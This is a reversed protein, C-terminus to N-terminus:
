TGSLIIAELGDATIRVRSHPRVHGVLEVLGRNALSVVTPYANGTPLSRSIEILYAGDKPARRALYALVARDRASLVVPAM